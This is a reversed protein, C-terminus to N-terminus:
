HRNPAPLPRWFIWPKLQSRDMFVVLQRGTQPLHRSVLCNQVRRVSADACRWQYTLVLVIQSLIHSGSIDMPVRYVLNPPERDFVMWPCVILAILHGSGITRVM